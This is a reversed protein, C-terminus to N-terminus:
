ESRDAELKGDASHKMQFVAIAPNLAKAMALIEAKDGADM